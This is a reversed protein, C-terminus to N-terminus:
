LFRGLLSLVMLAVAAGIGAGNLSVGSAVAYLLHGVPILTGIAFMSLAGIRAQYEKPTAHQTATDLIVASATATLGAVFAFPAALTPSESLAFGLLALAQPALLTAGVKVTRGFQRGIRPVIAAGILGGAASAAYTVGYAWGPWDYATSRLPIGLLIAPTAILNALAMVLLATRILRSRAAFRLGERADDVVTQGSQVNAPAAARLDPRARTTAYMTLWALAVLVFAVVGSAAGHAVLTGAAITAGITVTRRLMTSAANLATLREEDGDTLHKRMARIAPDHFGDAAAFLVAVLALGVVGTTGTALLAIYVGMLALRATLTIQAVRGIGFRDGVAGGIPFILVRPVISAALVIGAASGASTAATWALAVDFVETAATDATATTLYWRDARRRLTPASM